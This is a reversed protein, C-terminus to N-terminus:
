KPHEEAVQPAQVTAKFYDPQVQAVVVNTQPEVYSLLPKPYIGIWFILFILPAFQWTERMDLDKLSENASNTVQGFFVRQYLWLMYAAGLIIGVAAFAGWWVKAEFAGRITLFEGIFNNM